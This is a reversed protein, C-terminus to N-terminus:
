RVRKLVYYSPKQGRETVDGSLWPLFLYSSGDIEKIIYMGKTQGDRHLIWEENWGPMM